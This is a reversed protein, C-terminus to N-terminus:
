GADRVAGSVNKKDKGIKVRTAMYSESPSYRGDWLREVVGKMEYDTLTRVVTLPDEGLAAALDDPRMPMALLASLVRGEPRTMGEEAVRLSGFDLSLMTELDQECCVIAAGDAILRNTGMSQPSFIPGPVAYVRKGMKTASEATSSTGSHQGAECVFLADGLAAIIPNRELFSWKRADQGWPSLSVVAGGGALANEFVDRSSAPYILDAGLGSVVITRGGAAHASRLAASDCGYAGGSVVTMGCEAAIRGAMASTALGYPTAKRAGIISLHDGQLVGPDGLLYFVEPPYELSNFSQPYADDGRHIDM